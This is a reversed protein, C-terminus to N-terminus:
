DGSFIFFPNTPIRFSFISKFLIQNKTNKLRAFKEKCFQMCSNYSWYMCQSVKSCVKFIYIPRLPWAVLSLFHIPLFELHFSVKSCFKIKKKKVNAFKQKCFQMCYNYSWQTGHGVHIICYSNATVDIMSDLVFLAVTDAVPIKIAFNLLIFPGQHGSWFFYDGNFIFFPTTPIRFSFVSKFM